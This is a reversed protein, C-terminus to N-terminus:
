DTRDFRAKSVRTSPSEEVWAYLPNPKRWDPGYIYELIAERSRPMVVTEHRVRVHELHELLQKPTTYGAYDYLLGVSRMRRVAQRALPSLWHFRAVLSSLRGVAVRRAAFGELFMTFWSSPIFWESYAMQPDSSTRYFNVDVERGEDKRFSIFDFDGGDDKVEYGISVLLDVLSEKPVTGAWVAIDIDHDWPILEEDRVLGLLTGHCVWYPIRNVNLARVLETLQRDLRAEGDVSDSM